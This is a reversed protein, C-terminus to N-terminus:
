FTEKFPFVKVRILTNGIAIIATTIIIIPTIATTIATLTTTTTTIAEPFPEPSFGSFDEGRLSLPNGKPNRIYFPTYTPIILAGRLM